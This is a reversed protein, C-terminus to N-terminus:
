LTEFLMIHYIHGIIEAINLVLAYDLLFSISIIQLILLSMIM